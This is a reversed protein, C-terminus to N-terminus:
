PSRLAITDDGKRNKDNGRRGRLNRARRLRRQFKLRCFQCRLTM